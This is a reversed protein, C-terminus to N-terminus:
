EKLVFRVPVDVWMTVPIGMRRGPEFKWRRVADLASRDLLDHGCSTRIRVEGVRGDNRVEASLLVLGQYGRLRAYEPYNPSANERYMPVAIRVGEDKGEGRGAPGGRGAAGGSSGGGAAEPGPSAKAAPFGAEPIGVSALEMRKEELPATEQRLNQVASVVQMTFDRPRSKVAPRAPVPAAGNGEAGPGSVLSVHLVGDGEGALLRPATNVAAALVAAIVAAHLIVSALVASRFSKRNNLIGVM